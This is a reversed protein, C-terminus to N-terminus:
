MGLFEAAIQRQMFLEYNSLVTLFRGRRFSKLSNKFFTISTEPGGWFSQIDAHCSVVAVFHFCKKEQKYDTNM